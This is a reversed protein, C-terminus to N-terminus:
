CTQLASSEELSLPSNIVSTGSTKNERKRIPKSLLKQSKQNMLNLTWVNRGSITIKFFPKNQTGDKTIYM